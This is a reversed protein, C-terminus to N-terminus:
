QERDSRQLSVSLGVLVHDEWRGNVYLYKKALAEKEFGLKELLAASRVNDPMYNASIKTLGLTDFAYEVAHEVIRRMYGQGEYCLDVSYGLQCNRTPRYQIKTLSCTGVLTDDEIGIMHVSRGDQYERERERLRTEWVSVAHHQEDFYPQWRRFRDSNRLYYDSLLPAHDIRTTVIDM